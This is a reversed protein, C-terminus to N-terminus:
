DQLLFVRFKFRDFKALNQGLIVDQVLSCLLFRMLTKLVQATGRTFHALSSSRCISWLVLFSMFIYLSKCRLSSASVSYTGFFFSSSSKGANLIADICRYLSLIVVYFLVSFSQNHDGSVICVVCTDVSYFYNSLLFPFFSLQISM